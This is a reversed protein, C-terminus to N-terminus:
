GDLAVESIFHKDKLDNIYESVDSVLLDRPVEDIIAGQLVDVLKEITGNESINDWLFRGIENIEYLSCKDEFYNDSIDVLFISGHITRLVVDDNKIFM